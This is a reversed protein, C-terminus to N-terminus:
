FTTKQLSPLNSPPYLAKVDNIEITLAVSEYGKKQSFFSIHSLIGQM